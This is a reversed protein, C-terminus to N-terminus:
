DKQRIYKRVLSEALGTEKAIMKISGYMRFLETVADMMDQDTMPVRVVNETLSLTRLDGLTMASELITAPITKWGLQTVALFRRQGSIIGYGGNEKVVIIPQLLGHKRISELLPVLDDAVKRTRVHSKHISIQSLPIEQFTM